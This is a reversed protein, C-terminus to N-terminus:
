IRLKSGSLESKMGIILSVAEIIFGPNVKENPKNRSIMTNILRKNIEPKTEPVSVANKAMVGACSNLSFSDSPPLGFITYVSKSFGFVSSAVKNIAILKM